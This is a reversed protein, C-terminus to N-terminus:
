SQLRDAKLIYAKACMGYVEHMREIEKYFQGELIVNYYWAYLRTVSALFPGPVSALPHFYCRYIVLTIFYLIYSEIAILTWSSAWSPAWDPVPPLSLMSPM